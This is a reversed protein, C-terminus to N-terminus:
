RLVSDSCACLGSAKSGLSLLASALLCISASLRSSSSRSADPRRQVCLKEAPNDRGRPVFAHLAAPASLANPARRRGSQIAAVERPCHRRASHKRRPLLGACPQAPSPRLVQLERRRALPQSGRPRPDLLLVLQLLEHGVAAPVPVRGQGHHQQHLRIRRRRRNRRRQDVPEAIRGLRTSFTGNANVGAYGGTVFFLARDMALGARARLTLTENVNMQNSSLTFYQTHGVNAWDWDGEAGIVFQNIQYNAGATGGFTWGSLNGFSGNSTSAWGGAGNVGFYVGTWTFAPAYAPAPYNYSSQPPLDAAFAAGAVGALLAGILFRTM